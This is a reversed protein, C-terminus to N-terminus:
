QDLEGNTLPRVEVGSRDKLKESLAEEVPVQASKQRLHKRIQEWTPVMQSERIRVIKWYGTDSKKLDFDSWVDFGSVKWLVRVQATEYGVHVDRVQCQAGPIQSTFDAQERPSKALYIELARGAMQELLTEADGQIMATTFVNVCREVSRRVSWTWAGYAVMALVLLGMLWVVWRKQM